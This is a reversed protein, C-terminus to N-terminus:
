PQSETITKELFDLVRAMGAPMDDQVAHVKINMNMETNYRSEKSKNVSVSVRMKAKAFGWNASASASVGVNTTETDVISEDMKATFDIDMSAIRIFPIPVITLIPVTLAKQEGNATYSFTVNRVENTASVGEGQPAFGIAQIFNVTSLAATAQAEIAANLPGGILAGFPLASMSKVAYNPM